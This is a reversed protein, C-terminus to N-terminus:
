SETRESNLTQTPPEIGRVKMMQRITSGSVPLRDAMAIVDYVLKGLKSITEDCKQHLKM